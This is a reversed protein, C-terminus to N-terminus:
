QIMNQKNLEEYRSFYDKVSQIYNDITNRSREEENLYKRFEDIQKEKEM